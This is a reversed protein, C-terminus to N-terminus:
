PITDGAGSDCGDPNDCTGGGGGGGGDGPYCGDPNMCDGWGPPCPRPEVIRTDAGKAPSAHVHDLWVRDFGAAGFASRRVWVEYVMRYDWTPAAPNPSFKEDTAPSSVTFTRHGRENLNRDLSTVARAVASASGEHVAGDGGVVGLSGYGSPRSPDDSIYDIAIDLVTEKQGDDFLLQAHDSRVIDVFSRGRKGWGIAEEGYTNDAWGPDFTLRVRLQEEGGVIEWGHELTAVPPGDGLGDVDFYCDLAEGSFSDGGGGGGGPDDGPSGEGAPADDGDDVVGICGGLAFGLAAVLFGQTRRRTRNM